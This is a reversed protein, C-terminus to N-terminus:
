CIIRSSGCSVGASVLLLLPLALAATKLVSAKRVEIEQIDSLAVAARSYTRTRVEGGFAGGRPAVEVQAYVESLGALSDGRIEPDSLVLRGCGVSTVRVQAPDEVEIVQPPAVTTPRWSYCGGLHVVLLVLAVPRCKPSSMEAGRFSM